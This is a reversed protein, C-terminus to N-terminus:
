SRSPTRGEAFARTSDRGVRDLSYRQTLRVVRTTSRPPSSLSRAGLKYSAILEQVQSALTKAGIPSRTVARTAHMVTTDTASLRLDAIRHVFLDLSIGAVPVDSRVQGPRSGNDKARARV